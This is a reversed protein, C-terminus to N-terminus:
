RPGKKGGRGGKASDLPGSALNVRIHSENNLRYPSILPRDAFRM